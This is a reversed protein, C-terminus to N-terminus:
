GDYNQRANRYRTIFMYKTRGPKLELGTDKSIELLIGTNKKTFTYTFNDRHKLQAGRWSSTNPSNLYLEV